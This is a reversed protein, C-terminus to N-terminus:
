AGFRSDDTAAVAWLRLSPAGDPVKFRVHTRGAVDTLLGGDFFATRGPHDTASAHHTDAEAKAPVPAPGHPPLLARGMDARSDIWYSGAAATAADLAAFPDRAAAGDDVAAFTVSARAPTGAQDTVLVDAELPDGPVPSPTTPVIRVRLRRSSAAVRLGLQGVALSNTDEGTAGGGPNRALLVAVNGAARMDDTIPVRLTAKSGVVHIREGRPTGSGEVTVFADGERFPSELQVTATQGVEYVAQDSALAVRGRTEAPASGTPHGSPPAQSPKEDSGPSSPDAAIVQVTTTAAGAGHDADLLVEASLSWPGSREATPVHVAAAFGGYADLKGETTSVVDGHPGTVTLRAPRGEAPAGEGHRREERFFAKTEITDGLGYSERDTLLVGSLSAASLLPERCPGELDDALPRFTWDDGARAILVSRSDVSGTDGALSHADSVLVAMGSEDTRGTVVEAGTADRVSVKAGPVPKGNSLRDVWVLGGHVGIRATMMLDTQTVVRVDELQTGARTPGQSEAVFLAAGRGRESALLAELSLVRTEPPGFPSKAHVAEIKAQPFLRSAEAMPDPALPTAEALYRVLSAENLPQALLDYAGLNASQVAVTRPTGGLVGFVEQESIHLLPDTGVELARSTTRTLAQGYVDKMGASVVLEYRRAPALPARLDVKTLADDGRRSWDIPAPPEFRVHAELERVTVPNSLELEAGSARCKGAALSRTRQASVVTLAGHTRMAFHAAKGLPLPGELGHLSEDIDLELSTAPPLAGVPTLALRTQTGPVSERAHLPWPKKADGVVLHVARLVEEERVPQNFRLEFTPSQPIQGDRPELSVLTPRETSFRFSYPAALVTGDVAQAGAAVAIEYETAFPLRSSPSFVVASQGVWRWAGAPEGGGVAMLKALATGRMPRDFVIGVPSPSGFAVSVPGPRAESAAEVGLGLTRTPLVTPAKAENFCSTGLAVWAIALSAILSRQPM